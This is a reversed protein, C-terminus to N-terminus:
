LINHTFSSLTSSQQSKITSITYLIYYLINMIVLM